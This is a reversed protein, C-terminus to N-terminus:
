KLKGGDKFFKAREPPELLNFEDRTIANTMDERNSEPPKGKYIKGLEQAINSKNWELVDEIIARADEGMVAIKRAISPKFGKAEYESSLEDQFKNLLTRKENDSIKLELERIRKQEPTEEPSLEARLADEREKARKEATEEILTAGKGSAYTNVGESIRSDIVSMINPHKLVENWVDNGKLGEFPNVGTELEAKTEIGDSM